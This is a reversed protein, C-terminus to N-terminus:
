SRSSRFLLLSLLLERLPSSCPVLPVALPEEFAEVQPVVGLFCPCLWHPHQGPRNGRGRQCRRRRKYLEHADIINYINFKGCRVIHYSVPRHFFGSMGHPVSSLREDPPCSIYRHFARLFIHKAPRVRNPGSSTFPCNFWKM